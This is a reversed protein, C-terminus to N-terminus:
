VPPIRGVRENLVKLEQELSKISDSLEAYSVPNARLEQLSKLTISHQSRTRTNLQQTLVPYFHWQDLNLPDLTAKIRHALIAFVYIDAQRRSEPAHKNTTSDWARTHPIQFCIASHKVQHWSQLYACSKVEIKTENKTCLDFADWENRVNGALGLASAVIFEAFRGRTVNSVLDSVSWQWFDLLTFGTRGGAVFLPENGKKRTALLPSLGISDISKM